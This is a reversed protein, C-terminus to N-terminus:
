NEEGLNTKMPPEVGLKPNAKGVGQSSFEGEESESNLQVNVLFSVKKV